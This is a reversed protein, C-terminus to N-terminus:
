KTLARFKKIFDDWPESIMIKDDIIYTVTPNKPTPPTTIVATQGTKPNQYKMSISLYDWNFNKM